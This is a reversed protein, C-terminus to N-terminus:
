AKDCVIICASIRREHGLTLRWTAHLQQTDLDVHITDLRMNDTLRKGEHNFLDVTLKWGPLQVSVAQKDSFVGELEIFEDGQLAGNLAGKIMQDAPACNFYSCDFDKPYDAYGYTNQEFDQHWAADYSGQREVRPSWWRAIPGWGAPRYNKFNIDTNTSIRDNPWDIQPGVYSQDRQHLALPSGNGFSFLSDTPGFYGSGSPNHEFAEIVPETTEKAKVDIYYGGYSLEYRLPVHTTASPSTLKWMNASTHRWQRPGTFRLTKNILVGKGQRVYLSGNWSTQPKNQFSRATGTVYVDTLPKFLVTDGAAKLSSYEPARKSNADEDQWLDDALCVATQNESLQAIGDALDFSAKVVVVDFFKRGVGMDMFKLSPLGTLNNVEKLEPHPLTRPTVNQGTAATNQITKTAQNM